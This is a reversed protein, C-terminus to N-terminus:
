NDTSTRFLSHIVVNEFLSIKGPPTYVKDLKRMQLNLICVKGELSHEKLFFSTPQEIM